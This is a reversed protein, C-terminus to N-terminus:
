YIVSFLLLNVQVLSFYYLLRNLTGVKNLGPFYQQMFSPVCHSWLTLLKEGLFQNVVGTCLLPACHYQIPVDVSLNRINYINAWTANLNVVLANYSTDWTYWFLLLYYIVSLLRYHLRWTVHWQVCHHLM